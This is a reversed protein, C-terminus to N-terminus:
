IFLWWKFLICAVCFASAQLHSYNTTLFLLGYDVVL